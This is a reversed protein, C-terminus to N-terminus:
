SIGNQKFYLKIVVPSQGRLIVTILQKSSSEAMILVSDKKVNSQIIHWGRKEFVRNYYKLVAEREDSTQMVVVGQRNFIASGYSGAKVIKSNKYTFVAPFSESLSDPNEFLEFNVFNYYNQSKNDRCSLLAIFMSVM